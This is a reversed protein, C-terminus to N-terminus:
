REKKATEARANDLIKHIEAEDNQSLVIEALRRAEDLSTERIRQKILPLRAPVMSFSRLGLGLLLATAQPNSAMEGCLSVPKGARWAAAITFQILRLVGPHFSDYLDAVRDDARDIALTYQTLDNSGISFFDCVEALADAALAAGPIEIMAGLPPPAAPIKYGKRRLKTALQGMRQRVARIQHASSVMPVLIRVPGHESARLAAALQADLLAPMKLGLRIARLGLAPNVSEGIAAGLASALKEGGVDLTRVTVPRGKMTEVLERLTEYQENEDPLTPRNMFQFETRLLGIGEAGAELAQTAERPIELNAELAVGSGDKTVSPLDSFTKMRRAADRALRQSEARAKQIREATPRIVIEGREGDIIIKDGTAVGSILAAVGLVAPLRMARAMIAAHGEAGGLVAAFGAIRDRNMLATDAPTIDEAIIISGAPAEAFPNYTQELLNRIVRGGVERVDGSRAALYPDGMAAFSAALAGIQRQVAAEANIREGRILDEIGRVLRSGELMGRYAEILLGIDEAAGTPLTETKQKLQVLQHQAKTVAAHFRKLEKDIQAPSLLYEPVPFGSQDIVFAPGIAIGPSVGIGTLVKEGADKKESTKM